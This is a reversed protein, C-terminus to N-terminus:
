YNHHRLKHLINSRSNIIDLNLKFEDPIHIWIVLGIPYICYPDVFMLVINQLSNKHIGIVFAISKQIPFVTDRSIIASIM